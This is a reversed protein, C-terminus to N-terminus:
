AAPASEKEFYELNFLKLYLPTEETPEEDSFSETDFDQTIYSFDDSFTSNEFSDEDIESLNIDFRSLFTWQNTQQWQQLDVNYRWISM